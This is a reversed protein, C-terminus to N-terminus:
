FHEMIGIKPRSVQSNFEEPVYSYFKGGNGREMSRLIGVVMMGKLNIRRKM